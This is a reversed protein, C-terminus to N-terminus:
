KRLGRLYEEVPLRRGGERQVELPEIGGAGITAEPRAPRARWVILRRGDV